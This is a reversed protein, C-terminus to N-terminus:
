WIGWCVVWVEVCVLLMLEYDGVIDIIVVYGEKIKYDVVGDINKVVYKVIYGVVSGKLWDICKVDFWCKFVGLEGCDVCWVYCKMVCIVCGVVDMVYLIIYGLLVCVFVLMYWYLCGDYYLEVICFGYLGIGCWVLVLCVLVMMKGLYKNVICFDFGDYKLNLKGM